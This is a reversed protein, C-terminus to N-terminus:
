KRIGGKGIRVSWTADCYITCLPSVSRLSAAYQPAPNREQERTGRGGGRQDLFRSPEDVALDDALPVVSLVSAIQDLLVKCRGGFNM